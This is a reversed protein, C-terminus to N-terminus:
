KGIGAQNYEVRKADGAKRALQLCVLYTRYRQDANMAASWNRDNLTRRELRQVALLHYDKFADPGKHSKVYVTLGDEISGAYAGAKGNMLHVAASDVHYAADDPRMEIAEKIKDTNMEDFGEDAKKDAANIGRIVGAAGMIADVERNGSTGFLGYAGIEIVHEKLWEQAIDVIWQFDCGVLSVVLACLLVFLLATRMVKAM